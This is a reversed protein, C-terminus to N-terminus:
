ALCGAGRPTSSSTSRHPVTTEGPLAHTEPSPGDAPRLREGPAAGGTWWPPRVQVFRPTLAFGLANAIAAGVEREGSLTQSVLSHTLGTRRAFARLGGSHDCAAVLARKVADAPLLEPAAASM